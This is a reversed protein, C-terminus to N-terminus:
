NVAQSLLKEQWDQLSLLQHLEMWAQNRHSQVPYGHRIPIREIRKQGNRTIDHKNVREIRPNTTTPSCPSVKEGLFFPKTRSPVGLIVILIAVTLLMQINIKGLLFSAPSHRYWQRMFVDLGKSDLIALRKSFYNLFTKPCSRM